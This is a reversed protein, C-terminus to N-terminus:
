AISYREVFEAIQSRVQNMPITEFFWEKLDNQFFRNVTPDCINLAVYDMVDSDSQFLYNQSEVITLKAM